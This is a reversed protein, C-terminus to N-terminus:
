SVAWSRRRIDTAHRLEDPIAFTPAAQVGTTSGPKSTLCILPLSSNM